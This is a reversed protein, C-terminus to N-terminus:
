SRCEKGVRREESRQVPRVSKKFISKFKAVQAESVATPTKLVFWNVGESCPPTTLSGSYNYYSRNEPLFEAANVTIGKVTNEEGEKKPLNNWVTQVLTNGKGKELLGGIVALEGEKSKHVLHVVMDSAKGKITHESPSHFHFQLLEYEKSNVSISSGKEYNVQITHGNNIVKLPSTTYNFTISGLDEHTAETIDIPSQSKREICFTVGLFLSQNKHFSTAQRNM